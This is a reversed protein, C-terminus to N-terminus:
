CLYITGQNGAASRAVARAGAIGYGHRGIADHTQAGHISTGQLIGFKSRNM